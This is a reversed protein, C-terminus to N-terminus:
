PRTAGTTAGATSTMPLFEKFRLKINRTENKITKRKVRIHQYNFDFKVNREKWRQRTNKTQM